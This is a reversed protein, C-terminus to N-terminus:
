CLTAFHAMVHEQIPPAEAPVWGGTCGWCVVWTAPLPSLDCVGVLNHRYVEAARKSLTDQLSDMLSQIFDGQALLLFRKLALAHNACKFRVFLLHMLRRPPPPVAM